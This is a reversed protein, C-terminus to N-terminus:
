IRAPSIINPTALLNPAARCGASCFHYDRDDHRAHHDTKDPVVSMGCVPDTVTDSAGDHSHDDHSPSPTVEAM